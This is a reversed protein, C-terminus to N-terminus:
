LHIIKEGKKERRTVEEFVKRIGSFPISNMREALKMPQDGTIFQTPYASKM